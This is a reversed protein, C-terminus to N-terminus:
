KLMEQVVAAVRRSGHKGHLWESVTSSTVGAKKAIEAHRIGRRRLENSIDSSSRRYGHLGHAMRHCGLCLLQLNGTDQYSDCISETSNRHHVHGAQGVFVGCSECNGDARKLVLFRVEAPPSLLQQARQRSIQLARGIREYTFGQFRLQLAATAKSRTKENM